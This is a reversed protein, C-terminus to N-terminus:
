RRGAKRYRSEIFLNSAGNYIFIGGIVMVAVKMANFAHFLLFLGGVITLAAMALSTLWRIGRRKMELAQALNLIGNLVVALGILKPLLTVVGKPAILMVLGALLCLLAIALNAYGAGVVHRDRYWSVFSVVAGVLLAVGLISAAVELSKGPWIFLALGLLLMVISLLTNNRSYKEFRFKLTSM